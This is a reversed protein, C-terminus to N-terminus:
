LHFRLGVFFSIRTLSESEQLEVRETRGNTTVELETFGGLGFGVGAGIAISPTLLHELGLDGNLGFTGAEAEIFEDVIQVNERYRLYGAAFSYNIMWQPDRFYYRGMLSPGIFLLSIDTKFLGTVTSDPFDELEFVATIANSAEFTSVQAGIALEDNISFHIRGQYGRGNRLEDLYDVLDPPLGEPTPAVRRSFVYSGSIHVTKKDREPTLTGEDPEYRVIEVEQTKTPQDSYYNFKIERVEDKSILVSQMGYDNLYTFYIYEEDQKTINCEISDTETIILDQTWGCISTLFFLFLFFFRRM